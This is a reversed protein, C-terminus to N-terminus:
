QEEQTGNTDRMHTAIPASDAKIEYKQHLDQEAANIGAIAVFMMGVAALMMPSFFFKSM